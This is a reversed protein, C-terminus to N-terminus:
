DGKHYFCDLRSIGCPCAASVPEVEDDAFLLSFSVANFNIEIRIYPNDFYLINGELGIFSKNDYKVIKVKDGIKM